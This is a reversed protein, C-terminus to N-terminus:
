PSPPFCRASERGRRCHGGFAAGGDAHFRPRPTATTLFFFWFLPVAVVEVVLLFLLNSTAKALFISAATWLCWCFAKWAARSRRTDCVVPEPGSAVHVRYAGVSPRRLNAARRNRQATQGLAAGYVVLVLLAYIGMSTLMEKPASSRSALGQALLTKYQAFTSPVSLAVSGVPRRPRRRSAQAGNVGGGNWRDLPVTRLVRRLRLRGKEDFAVVRGRALVLAHTCMDFGKQLDHSVMVFTRGERHKAILEISFILPM